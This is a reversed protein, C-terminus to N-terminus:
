RSIVQKELAAVSNKKVTEYDAASTMQSVDFSKGVLFLSYMTATLDTEKAKGDDTYAQIDFFGDPSIESVGNKLDPKIYFQAETGDGVLIMLVVGYKDPPANTVKGAIRAGSTYEASVFSAAVSLGSASLINESQAALDSRKLSRAAFALLGATLLLALAFVGAAAFKRGPRNGPKGDIIGFANDKTFDPSVGEWVYVVASYDRFNDTDRGAKVSDALSSKRGLFERTFLKTFHSGYGDDVRMKRIHGIFLVCGKSFVNRFTFLATEASHCCDLIIMRPSSSVPTRRSNFFEGGSKLVTLKDEAHECHAAIHLVNNHALSEEFSDKAGGDDIDVEDRGCGVAQYFLRGEESLINPEYFVRWSEGTRHSDPRFEKALRVACFYKGWTSGAKEVKSLEWPLDKLKDDIDLRISAAKVKLLYRTVKETASTLPEQIEPLCAGSGRFYIKACSFIKDRVEAPFGVTPFKVRRLGHSVAFDLGNGAETLAIKVEAFGQVTM